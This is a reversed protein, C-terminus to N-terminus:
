HAIGVELWLSVRAGKRDCPSSLRQATSRTTQITALEVTATTTTRSPAAIVSGM